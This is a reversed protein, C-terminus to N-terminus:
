STAEQHTTATRTAAAIEVAIAKGVLRVNDALMDLGLTKCQEFLSQASASAVLLQAFHLQQAATM